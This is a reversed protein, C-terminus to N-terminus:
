YVILVDDNRRERYLFFEFGYGSVHVLPHYM